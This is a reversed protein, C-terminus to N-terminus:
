WVRRLGYREFVPDRSIVAIGPKRAQAVQVRDFGRLGV